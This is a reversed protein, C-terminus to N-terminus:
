KIEVFGIESKEDDSLKYMEFIINDIEIAKEKTYEQQIDDVLAKFKSDTEGDVEIVPIKDFFIKSLERTGGQLEPFSDRFCYKFLSSNFFATLFATFKGTIIFCKQNTLFHKEDYVFPLYKTMNPYVIKPRDFDDMYVCNRLNYPTDGQDSRKTVKTGFSDLYAKITPYENIDIRPYKGKVGNHTNILWLGAWDYRYRKIDRGRM